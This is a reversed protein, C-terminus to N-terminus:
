KKEGSIMFAKRDAAKGIAVDSIKLQTTELSFTNNLILDSTLVSGVKLGSLEALSFEGFNLKVNVACSKQKMVSSRSALAVKNAQKLKIDFVKFACHLPVLLSLRQKGNFNVEISVFNNVHRPASYAAAPEWNKSPSLSHLLDKKASGLLSGLNITAPIALLAEGFISEDWNLNHDDFLLFLNDSALVKFDDLSVNRKCTVSVKLASECLSWNNLWELCRDEIVKKVDDLLRSSFNSVNQM